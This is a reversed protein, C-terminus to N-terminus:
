DIIEVILRKIKFSDGYRVISMEQKINLLANDGTVDKARWEIGYTVTWGSAQNGTVKVDKLQHSNWVINDTIGQSWRLFKEQSKIPYGPFRM